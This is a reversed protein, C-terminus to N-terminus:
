CVCEEGRYVGRLQTKGESIWTLAKILPAWLCRHNWVVSQAVFGDCTSDTDSVSSRVFAPQPLVRPGRFADGSRGPLPILDPSLSRELPSPVAGAWSREVALDGCSRCWSSPLAEAGGQPQSCSGKGDEAQARPGPLSGLSSNLAPASVAAKCSWLPTEGTSQAEPVQPNIRVRLDSTGATVM